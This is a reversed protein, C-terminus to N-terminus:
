SCFYTNRYNSNSHYRTRRIRLGCALQYAPVMSPLFSRWRNLATGALSAQLSASVAKHWQNANRPLFGPRSVNKRCRMRIEPSIERVLTAGGYVKSLNHAFLSRPTDFFLNFCRKPIGSPLLVPLIRDLHKRVPM